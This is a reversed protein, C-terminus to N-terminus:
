RGGLSGLVRGALAEGSLWAGEVRAGQCWDGCAGIGLGDDWLCDQGLPNEALSYLWRQSQRWIPTPEEGALEGFAGLLDAIVQEAPTDLHERTWDAAAHLVWVEGSRGPKAGNRAAWGLPGSNLFLGDWPLPVARDFGIMVSWCPAYRVEAARAALDPAADLLATAQPAPVAVLVRDFRGLEDERDDFLVWRDAERRVAGVRTGAQVQLEEALSRGIASMGPVGVFREDTAGVPEIVGDGVAGFRGSWPAVLGRRQWSVVRRRFRPDRATFYQAGHDAAAEGGPAEPVRRTAARGGRGRSKEFVAVEHNQDTLVRAAALGSLGAGIVAIKLRLGGAPTRVRRAYTELDLRRAHQETDRGRVTGLVPQEPKFPRDFLGLTWLLGGYSNPDSGDLAHRHNLDILEQLARQPSETWRPIAKAWTMRLNNHLEGHALLSRQALDWLRDGSAARALTESDLIQERADAAHASLTERAWGPLTDWAEPDATHFCFNHALERWILLEDLFKDAGEGGEAAAERAIRLPSVHGHHLYPSLRSVGRPWAQAADNRRRHYSGLGDRKFAEWRAYGASSGGVTHTVPPLSHDIDCAACLEPISAAEWAVPTFPLDGAYPEVSIDCAPWRKPVREMYARDSHRRLEFARAFRRPQLRMPVVCACDLCWVPAAIREALRETWRPFPPAPFEETVVLAAREALLPLPSPAGPDAPLHFVARIGRQALALHCDRAGELIFAHHRDSNFRHRGGLGQYVLLPLQLASAAHLAADLAPNEAARVAHHLWLLVFEGDSRPPKDRLPRLREGLHPPLISGASESDPPEPPMAHVTPPPTDSSRGVQRGPASCSVIRAADASDM